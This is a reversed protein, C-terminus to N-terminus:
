GTQMARPYCSIATTSGACRGYWIPSSASAGFAIRSITCRGGVITRPLRTMFVALADEAAKVCIAFQDRMDGFYDLSAYHELLYVEQPILPTAM